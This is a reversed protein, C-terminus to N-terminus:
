PKAIKYTIGDLTIVCVNDRFNNMNVSLSGQSDTHWKGICRGSVAYIQMLANAPANKVAITNNGFFFTTPESQVEDIATDDIQFTAKHLTSLDFVAHGTSSTVILSNSTYSMEAESDFVFRTIKSDKQEILIVSEAWGNITLFAVAILALIKKNM